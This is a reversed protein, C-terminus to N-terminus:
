WDGFRYTPFEELKQAIEKFKDDQMHDQIDKINKKSLDAMLVKTDGSFCGSGIGVKVIDVGCHM